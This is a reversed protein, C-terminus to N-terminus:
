VREVVLRMGNVATVKVRTAAPADAGEVDWLADEIRLKGAGNVIAQELLYSQGVYAQQRQNLHPQDSTASWGKTVQKWSSFVLALSLLAFAIIEGSWGLGLAMDALGTLAAAGGLWMLFVGPSLLEGFLLLGAVIFWFWPGSLSLLEAM